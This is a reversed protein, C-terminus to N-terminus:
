VRSFNWSSLVKTCQIDGIKIHPFKAALKLGLESLAAKKSVFIEIQDSLSWDSPDWAKVMILHSQERDQEREEPVEPLIQIAIEKGDFM